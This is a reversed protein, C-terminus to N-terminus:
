IVGHIARRFMGCTEIGPATSSRFVELRLRQRPPYHHSVIALPEYDCSYSMSGTYSVCIVMFINMVLGVM